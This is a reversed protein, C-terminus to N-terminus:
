VSRKVMTMQNMGGIRHYLLCAIYFSMTITLMTIAVRTKDTSVVMLDLKKEKSPAPVCKNKDLYPCIARAFMWAFDKGNWFLHHYDGFQSILANGILKFTPHYYPTIGINTREKAKMLDSADEYTFQVGSFKGADNKGFVLHYAEGGAVIFTHGARGAVWSAGFKSVYGKFKHGHVITVTNLSDGSAAVDDGDKNRLADLYSQYDREGELPFQKQIQCVYRERTEEDLSYVKCLQEFLRQDMTSLM